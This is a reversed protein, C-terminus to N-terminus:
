VVEGGMIFRIVEEERKGRGGEREADKERQVYRRREGKERCMGGERERRIAGERRGVRQQGGSNQPEQHEVATSLNDLSAELRKGTDMKVNVVVVVVVCAM